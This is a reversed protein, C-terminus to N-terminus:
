DDEKANGIIVNAYLFLFDSNIYYYINKNTLYIIKKADGIIVNTQSVYFLQKYLLINKNTFNIMKKQM